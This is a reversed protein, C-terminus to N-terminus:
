HLSLAHLYEVLWTISPCQQLFGLLSCQVGSIGHLWMVTFCYAYAHLWTVAPCLRSVAVLFCEQVYVGQMTLTLQSDSLTNKVREAIIKFLM